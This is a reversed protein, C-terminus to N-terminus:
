FINEDSHSVDLSNQVNLMVKLYQVVKDYIDFSQGILVCDYKCNILSFIHNESKVDIKYQLGLACLAAGVIEKPSVIGTYTHTLIQIAQNRNEKPLKMFFNKRYRIGTMVKPVHHQSKLRRYEALVDEVSPLEEIPLIWPVDSCSSLSESESSTGDIDANGKLYALMEMAAKQKAEKKQFGCGSLQFNDITCTTKFEKRHEEGGIVVTDFSNIM